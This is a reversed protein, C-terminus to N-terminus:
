TNGRQLAILVIDHESKGNDNLRYKKAASWILIAIARHLLSAVTDLGHFGM